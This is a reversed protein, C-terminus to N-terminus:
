PSPRIVFSARLKPRSPDITDEVTVEVRGPTELLGPPVAATLLRSHGFGTRLARGNWFVTDGRTLGTGLIMLAAEGSELRQFVEGARCEEPVLARLSRDAEGGARAVRGAPIEPPAEERCGAAFMLLLGAAAAARWADTRM